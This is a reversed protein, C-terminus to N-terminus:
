SDGVADDGTESTVSFEADMEKSGTILNRFPRVIFRQFYEGLGDYDKYIKKDAFYEAPTYNEIDRTWTGFSDLYVVTEPEKATKPKLNASGLTEQYLKTLKTFKEIQDTERARNQEVKITCLDKILNETVMDDQAQDRLMKYHNNLFDYEEPKYGLGWRKVTRNSIEVDNQRADDLAEYSDIAESAKTKIYDLYTTGSDATQRLNLKATYSGIRSRDRNIRRSSAVALDDYFWDYLACMREIAKEENGSFFDVLTYYYTDTCTKCISVYGDNGAFLPSRSAPFNGKQVKYEKGCCTCKFNTDKDKPLIRGVKVDKNVITKRKVANKAREVKKDTPIVEREKRV